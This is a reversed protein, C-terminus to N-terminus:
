VLDVPVAVTREDVLFLENGGHVVIGPGIRLRPYTDVFSRIGSADRATPRATLKIEIPFFVGDRELLLDVEAGAATRWHWAVPRVSLGSLQKLVETVVYSEFLHGLGPHDQLASASSIALLHCALGLDVVHVKARGSLRKVTNGAYSDLAVVMYSGILTQLWQTATRPTVGIERGLQSANIEQATLAALLRMFRSFQHPDNLDRLTRVDREIYTRVYSDFWAPVEATKFRLLGPYGGRFLREYLGPEAQPRPARQLRRLLGAADRVPRPGFLAQVLGAPQQDLLEGRSMPLLDCLLARGALSEQARALVQFQQSGTLYYQGHQGPRQDVARKLAPLLEPAHQVEDLILPPPNHLVFLEPDRRANGVDSVPDFVFTRARKGFLHALLTSKGSQRAGALVVVPFRQALTRLRPEIHRAQYAM